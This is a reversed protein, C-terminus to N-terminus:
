AQIQDWLQKMHEDPCRDLRALLGSSEVAEDSKLMKIAVSTKDQQPITIPPIEDLKDGNAEVKM